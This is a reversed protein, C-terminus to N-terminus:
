TTADDPCRTKAYCNMWCLVVSEYESGDRQEDCCQSSGDRSRFDVERVMVLAVRTVMLEVHMESETIREAIM